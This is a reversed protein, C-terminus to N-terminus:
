VKFFDLTFCQLTEEKSTRIIKKADQIASVLGEKIKIADEFSLSVVSSYHLNDGKNSGIKQMALLRWNMHHKSIFPSDAGLHTQSQGIKLDGNSLELLGTKLLLEVANAVIAPDLGLYTSVSQISQYGPVSILAHIAAFYWESYFLANDEISLEKSVSLRKKLDFRTKRIGDM